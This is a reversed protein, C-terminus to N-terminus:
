RVAGLKRLNDWVSAVTICHAAEIPTLNKLEKNPVGIRSALDSFLINHKECQREITYRQGGTLMTKSEAGRSRNKYAQNPNLL